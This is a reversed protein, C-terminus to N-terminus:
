KSSFFIFTSIDKPFNDDGILIMATDSVHRTIIQYSIVPDLKDHPSEDELQNETFYKPNLMKGIDHYQAMVKMENVDLDLALSIGEIMSLVSQSHKFTGPCADRFQKLLPYSSDLLQKLDFGEVDSEKSSTKNDDM